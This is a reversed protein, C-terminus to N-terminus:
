ENTKEECERISKVQYDSKILQYKWEKYNEDLVYLYITCEQPLNDGLIQIQFVESECVMYQSDPTYVSGEIQIQKLLFANKNSNVFNINLKIREHSNVHTSFQYLHKNAVRVRTDMDSLLGFIPKGKLINDIERIKNTHKITWAVGALTLIGGIASAYIPIITGNLIEDKVGAYTLLFPLGVIM